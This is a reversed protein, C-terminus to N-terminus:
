VGEVETGEEITGNEPIEEETTVAPTEETTEETTAAPKSIILSYQKITGSKGKIKIDNSIVPEDSLALARCLASAKQTSIGLSVGIESAVMASGDLLTLIKASLDRNAIQTPTLKSAKKRNANDINAVEKKAFETLEASPNIEIIKLFFEKKTM